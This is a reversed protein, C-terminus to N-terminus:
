EATPRDHGRLDTLLETDSVIRIRFQACYAAVSPTRLHRDLTCLVEAQGLIATAVIPDDDPDNLVVADPAAAPLGVVVAQDRILGVFKDITPDDFGHIRRVREYRMARALEALIFESVILIHPSQTALNLVQTAPSDRTPVARVLVNTDLVIRM